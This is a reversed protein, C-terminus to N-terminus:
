EQAEDQKNEETEQEEATIEANDDSAPQEDASVVTNDGVVVQHQDLEIAFEVPMVMIDFVLQEEDDRPPHLHREAVAVHDDFGALEDDHRMPGFMAGLRQVALAM